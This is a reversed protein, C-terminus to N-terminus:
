TVLIEVNHVGRAWLAGNPFVLTMVVRPVSAAIGNQIM